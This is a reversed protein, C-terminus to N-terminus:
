IIRYIRDGGQPKDSVISLGLKKKLAGAFTGRVTHAQWGTLECVQAISAGEPRKLLEIVVAQKSGERTRPPRNAAPATWAAEATAVAAETEADIPAAASKPVRKGLAKYGEATVQCVDAETAVLGRTHLGSLVKNRAGGKLHDPFWEVRGKTKGTAHDVITRQTDTLEIKSM